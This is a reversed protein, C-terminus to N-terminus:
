SEKSPLKDIKLAEGFVHDLMILWKRLPDMLPDGEMLNGRRIHELGTLMQNQLRLLPEKISSDEQIEPFDEAHSILYDYNEKYEPLRLDILQKWIKIYQEEVGVSRNLDLFSDILDNESFRSFNKLSNLHLIYLGLGTVELENFIRDQETLSIKDFNILLRFDKTQWLEFSSEAIIMALAKPLTDEV